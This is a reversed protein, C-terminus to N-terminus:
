LKFPTSVKNTEVGLAELQQSLKHRKNRLEQRYHKKEEWTVDDYYGELHKLTWYDTETLEKDITNINNLMEDIQLLKNQNELYQPNKLFQNNIFVYSYPNDELVDKPITLEIFGEPIANIYWNSKYLYDVIENNENLKTYM